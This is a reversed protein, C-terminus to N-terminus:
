FAFIDKTDGSVSAPITKVVGLQTTTKEPVGAGGLGAKATAGNVLKPAGGTHAIGYSPGGAGSGSIGSAGGAGGPAGPNGFSPTYGGATASSGFTGEGGLGGPGGLIETMEFTLGDCKSLLAGVSAGGGSGPTGALGPCGGAGGGSGSATQSTLVCVSGVPLESGSGGAGGTGPAGNTGRSGHGLQFGDATMTGGNSSVGDFGRQGVQGTRSEGRTPYLPPQGAIALIPPDGACNYAGGAGGHGGSEGDFGPAGLCQGVGGAGGPYASNVVTGFTHPYGYSGVGGNAAPGLVLQLGEEGGLGRLGRGATITSSAITLASANKALLGISSAEQTTADPAKVSFGEFRTPIDINTATLAPSKPAELSTKDAGKKWVRDSCDLGGIISIGREITVNEKFLGSCVFVHKSAKKGAAIGEAITALPSTRTGEAGAVGSPSVFVGYEETIQNETPTGPLPTPPAPESPNAPPASPDTTTPLANTPEDGGSSGCAVAMISVVNLVLVRQFIAKRM